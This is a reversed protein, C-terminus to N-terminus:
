CRMAYANQIVEAGADCSAFDFRYVDLNKLALGIPISVHLLEFEADVEKM